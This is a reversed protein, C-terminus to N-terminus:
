DILRMQAREDAPRAALLAAVSQSLIPHVWEPAVEALPALVFSRDQMRPHPLILRDPVQQLQAAIPLDRWHRHQAEDPLIRQGLAILDLDLVRAGWRTQRLRGARAEVDHLFDLVDLPPEAVRAAFAANVFDPGGPPVSATSYLRSCVANEPFRARLERLAARVGGEPGGMPGDLNSGLAVLLIEGNKGTLQPQRM